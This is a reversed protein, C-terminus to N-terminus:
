EITYPTALFPWQVDCFHGPNQTNKQQNPLLRAYVYKNNHRKKEEFHIKKVISSLIQKHM